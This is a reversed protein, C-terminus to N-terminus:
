KLVVKGSRVKYLFEASTKAYKSGNSAAKEYWAIATHINKIVGDAIDRDENPDYYQALLYQCEATYIGNAYNAGNMYATFRLKGLEGLESESLDKWERRLSWNSTSRDKRLDGNEDRWLYLEPVNKAYFYCADTLGQNAAKALLEIREVYDKTLFRGVALQAYKDGNAAETRLSEEYQQKCTNIVNEDVLVVALNSCLAAQAEKSGTQAKNILIEAWYKKKEPSPCRGGDGYFSGMNLIAGVEGRIPACDSGYGREAVAEYEDEDECFYPLRDDVSQKLYYLFLGDDYASEGRKAISARLWEGAYAPMQKILDNVYDKNTYEHQVKQPQKPANSTKKSASTSAENAKAVDANYKGIAILVVLVVIIIIIWM